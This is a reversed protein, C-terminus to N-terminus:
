IYVSLAAYERFGFLYSNAKLMTFIFSLGSIMIVTMGALQDELGMYGLGLASLVM